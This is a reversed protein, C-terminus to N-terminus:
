LRSYKTIKTGRYTASRGDFIAEHTRLPIGSPCGRPPTSRFDSASDIGPTASRQLASTLASSAMKGPGLKKEAMKQNESREPWSPRLSVPFDPKM